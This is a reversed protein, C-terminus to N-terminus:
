QNDLMKLVEILLDKKIEVVPSGSYHLRTNPDTLVKEIDIIKDPLRKEPEEFKHEDVYGSLKLLENYDVDLATALTKLKRPNISQILGQELRVLYSLSVQMDINNPYLTKTSKSISCATRGGRAKKIFKGLEISNEKKM